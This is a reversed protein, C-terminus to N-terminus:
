RRKMKQKRQLRSAIHETEVNASRYMTEFADYTSNHHAMGAMTVGSNCTGTHQM